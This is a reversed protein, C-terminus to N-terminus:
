AESGGLTKGHVLSLAATARERRRRDRARQRPSVGTSAARAVAAVVRQRSYRGPLNEIEPVPARGQRKLRYWQRESIRLLALVESLTLVLPLAEAGGDAAADAQPSSRTM